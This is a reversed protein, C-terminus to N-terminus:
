SFYHRQLYMWVLVFLLAALTAILSSRRTREGASRDSGATVATSRPLYRGPTMRWTVAALLVFLPFVTYPHFQNLQVPITTALIACLAFVVLRDPAALPALELRGGWAQRAAPPAAAETVSSTM